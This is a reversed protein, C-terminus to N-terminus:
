NDVDNNEAVNENCEQQDIEEITSAFLNASKEMSFGDKGPNGYNNQSNAYEARHVSTKNLWITYPNFMLGDGKGGAM